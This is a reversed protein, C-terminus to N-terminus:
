IKGIQQMIASKLGGKLIGEALQDPNDCREIRIDGFSFSSTNSTGGASSVAAYDPVGFSPTYNWASALNELLMSQQQRNLIAEGEHAIVPVAHARDAIKQTSFLRLLYERRSDQSAGVLGNEIGSAYVGPGSNVYAGTTVHSNAAQGASVVGTSHSGSSSDDDDDDDDRDKRTNTIDDLANELNDRVDELIDKIDNVNETLQQWSTTYESILAANENYQELSAILETGTQHLADQVSTLISEANADAGTAAALFEFVNDLNSMTSMSQNLQALLSNVGQVAQEYSITGEKYASIYDELLTYINETSTIQEEYQSIQDSLKQYMGSFMSYLADDNGGTITEKWGTGLIEAALAEDKATSIKESIESWKDSIKELSEIQEEYRDNVADLEDQLCEIEKELDYQTLNALADQLSEEANRINDANTEYVIQGDRIVRETKQTNATQLDYLAQEYASQVRLAENQKQLLELREKLVDVQTDYNENHADREENLLDIEEQVANTVASIVTDYDSQVNSMANLAKQLKGAYENVSDLPMQLLAENWKHLNEVMSSMESNISQLKSYLTNWNDSGMEYEDMVDRVLGAQEKYQDIIEMGNNILMQYYQQDVKRGSAEMQAGWRKISDIVSDYISLISDINEIPLNLLDNYLQERATDMSIRTTELNTLEERIDLYDQNNEDFGSVNMLEDLEAQKAAIKQDLIAAERKNNEILQQYSAATVIQGSEKLYSIQAQILSTSAQIQKAQQELYEINNAHFDKIHEIHDLQLNQQEAKANELKQYADLADTVQQYEEDSLTEILNPDGEIKERMEPTLGSALSEYDDQYQEIAKEYNSLQRKDSEIIQALYSRRSETYGGNQIIQFLDSLSIGAAKAMDQLQKVEQEMIGDTSEIIAKAQELESATLGLYSITTASVNKRLAAALNKEKDITQENWDITGAAYAKGRSNINGNNLLAETQRHNFIIDNSRLPVFEAGNDGVTFYRSGRVVLERGLEGVLSKGSTGNHWSGRSYASGRWSARGSNPTKSATASSDENSTTDNNTSSDGHFANFPLGQNMKDMLNTIVEKAYLAAKSIDNIGTVTVQMDHEEILKLLSDLESVKAVSNEAENGVNVLGSVTTDIDMSQLYDSVESANMEVYSGEDIELSFKISPDLETIQTIWSQVDEMSMGLNETLTSALSQIDINNDGNFQIGASSKLQEIVQEVEEKNQVDFDITIVSDMEAVRGMIDAIDREDRGISSLYEELVQASLITKDDVGNISFGVQALAKELEGTHFVVSNGYMKSAEVAALFAEETIGIANAIDTYHSPDINLEYTGDDQQLISSGWNQLTGSSQMDMLYSNIGSGNSTPDGWLAKYNELMQAAEEASWDYSREGFLYELGANAHKGYEGAKLSNSVNQYARATNLYQSNYDDGSLAQDYRTKAAIVTDFQNDLGSLAKDLLLASETINTFGDNGSAVDRMCKAAFTASMGVEDLMISILSHDQAMDKIKDATLSSTDGLDQLEQRLNDSISSNFLSELSTSITSLDFVEPPIKMADFYKKYEPMAALTNTIAAKIEEQSGAFATSSIAAAELSKRFSLFQKMSKPASDGMLELTSKILRDAEDANLPQTGSRYSEYEAEMKKIEDSLNNYFDSNYFANQSAISSTRYAETLEIQYQKLAELKAQFGDATSTDFDTVLRAYIEHDQDNPLKLEIGDIHIGDLKEILESNSKNVAFFGKTKGGAKTLEQEAILAGARLKASNEKLKDMSVANVADSLSGYKEILAEIESEEIHLASLLETQTSILEKKADQSDAAAKNLNNYKTLLDSIHASEEGAAKAADKTAQIQEAQKKKYNEYINIGASFVAFAASLGLAAANTGTLLSSLFGKQSATSTSLQEKFNGVLKKSNNHVSEITKIFSLLSNVTNLMSISSDQANKVISSSSSTSTKATNQIAAALQNWSQTQTDVNNTVTDLNQSIAATNEQLTSLTSSLNKIGQVSQSITQLVQITDSATQTLASLSETNKINLQVNINFKEKALQKHINALSSKDINLGLLAEYDTKAM